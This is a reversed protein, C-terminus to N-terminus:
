ELSLANRQQPDNLTMISVAGESRVEVLAAV